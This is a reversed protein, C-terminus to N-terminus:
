FPYQRLARELASAMMNLIFKKLHASISGSSEHSLHVVDM